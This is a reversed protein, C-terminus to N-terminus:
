GNALYRTKDNTATEVTPANSVFMKLTDKIKSLGQSELNKTHEGIYIISLTIPNIKVAMTTKLTPGSITIEGSVPPVIIPRALFHKGKFSQELEKKNM